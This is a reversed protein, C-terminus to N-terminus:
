LILDLRRLGAFVEMIQRGAVDKWRIGMRGKVVTLSKRM